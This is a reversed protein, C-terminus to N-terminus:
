ARSSMTPIPVSAKGPIVNPGALDVLALTSCATRAVARMFPGTVPPRNWYRPARWNLHVDRVIGPGRGVNWLRM